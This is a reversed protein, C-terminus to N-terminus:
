CQPEFCEAPIPNSPVEQPVGDLPEVLVLSKEAGLNDLVLEGFLSVMSKVVLSAGFKKVLESVAMEAEIEWAQGRYGEGRGSGVPIKNAGTLVRVSPAFAGDGAVV